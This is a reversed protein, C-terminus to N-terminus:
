AKYDMRKQYEEIQDACMQYADRSTRNKYWSVTWDVAESADLVPIWGLEREAKDINLTLTGAEHAADLQTADELEGKGYCTIVQDAIDWVNWISNETPGFNFGGSFQKPNRYLREALELYGSLPELVHQWPRVSYRNRIQIPVNAEIARICDPLIRDVAWDGGGIVNGARVSAIAKGHEEYKDPNFFSNRWSAILIEDCAKSSSYPDYGGFSDTEVYGRLTEKNEYCKDTTIMVAAKVSATKRISELVHITGMVNIEYTDVPMDYSRRVLPQAALHFVIDPQCTLFTQLLKESDRIDARIDVLKEQLDSLVFNDQATYPDLGYGIVQAGMKLLWICLWSGKFGTHGTVLVKKNKWFSQNMEIRM